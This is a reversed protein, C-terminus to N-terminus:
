SGRDEPIEISFVSGDEGTHELEVSGGHDEVVRRVIPLGLGTGGERTTFFLRFLRDRCEDPIGPGDDRVRLRVRGRDSLGLELDVQGGERGDMAQFSNTALNLLVQRLRDRDGRVPYVRDEEELAVRLAIGRTRAEPDLFDRVEEVLGRLEVRELEMPRPRAFDLFETVIRDLHGLAPRIRGLFRDSLAKLTDDAGGLSEELLHLNLTIGNLPNRIEHALGGALTGLYALHRQRRVQDELAQIRSMQFWLAAFVALVVVIVAGAFLLRRWRLRETTEEIMAAFRQEPSRLSEEIGTGTLAETVPRSVEVVEPPSEGRQVIMQRIVAGDGELIEVGEPGVTLKQLLDPGRFLLTEREGDRVHLYAADGRDGVRDLLEEFQDFGPQNREYYDHLNSGRLLRRAEESFAQAKQELDSRTIVEAVEAELGAGYFHLVLLLAGVLALFAPVLTRRHDRPPGREPEAPASPGEDPSAPIM